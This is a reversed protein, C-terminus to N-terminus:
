IGDSPRCQCNRYPDRWQGHGHHGSDPPWSPGCTADDFVTQKSDNLHNIENVITIQDTTGCFQTGGNQRQSRWWPWKMPPIAVHRCCTLTAWVMTTLSTRGMAVRLWVHRVRGHWVAFREGPGPWHITSTFGTISDNGATAVETLLRTALYTDTWITGDDFVVQEITDNLNSIENVLTIQDTTGTFTLVVTATTGTRGVVVERRITTCSCSTPTAWGMTM